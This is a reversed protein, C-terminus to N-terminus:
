SQIFNRMSLVFHYLIVLITLIDNIYQLGKSYLERVFFPKGDVLLFKNFWLSEAHIETVSGPQLAYLDYWCNLTQKYFASKLNLLFVANYKFQLM